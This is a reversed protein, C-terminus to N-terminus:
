AEALAARRDKRVNMSAAETISAMLDRCGGHEIYESHDNVSGFHRGCIESCRMKGATEEKFREIIKSVEPFRMMPPVKGPHQRLWDLTKLWVAVALAGCGKGSLGLGGAFGAVMISEAESAGLSKAMDTACNHSPLRGEQHSSLGKEGAEIARPTWEEAMIYCKNNDIGTLLNKAVLLLIGDLRKMNVGTYEKCDLTHNDKEFSAVLETAAALALASAEDVNDARRYAEAGTALAAGWLMGCQHGERFIGGALTDTAEEYIHDPHDYERNILHAFTHSCAGCKRFLEKTDNYASTM